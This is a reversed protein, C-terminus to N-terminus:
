PDDYDHEVSVKKVRKETKSCLKAGGMHGVQNCVRCTKDVFFCKDQQHPQRPNTCRPCPEPQDKDKRKDIRTSYRGAKKLKAIMFQAESETLEEDNDMSLQMVKKGEVSAARKRALENAEGDKLLDALSYDKTLADKRLKSDNTMEVMIDRIAREESYGHGCTCKQLRLTKVASRLRKYWAEISQNEQARQRFKFMAFAENIEGEMTEEIKKLANTWTDAPTGYDPTVVVKAKDVAYEKLDRGGWMMAITMKRQENVIGAVTMRDAVDEKWEHFNILREEADRGMDLPVKIGTIAVAGPLEANTAGASGHTAATTAANSAEERAAKVEAVMERNALAMDQFSQLLQAM